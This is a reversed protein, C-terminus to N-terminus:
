LNKFRKAKLHFKSKLHNSKSGMKIECECINCIYKEDKYIYKYYNKKYEKILEKKKDEETMVNEQEVCNEEPLNLM